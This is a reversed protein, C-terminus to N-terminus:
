FQFYIFSNKNFIGFIVICLCLLIYASFRFAPKSNFIKQHFDYRFMLYESLLLVGISLICVFFSATSVLNTTIGPAAFNFGHTCSYIMAIADNFSAARFFIWGFTVLVFVTAMNLIDLVPSTAPKRGKFIVADKFRGFLLYIGHLGGWIIFTWNAGHWLGSLLFVILINRCWVPISVRNGGLPIYLYDRFWSSLSIHWRGWFESISKAFYPFNFNKMLDIGMVRATGRAIDTYGSFDCYIQFSFFIVAILAPFGMFDGPAAYVKDVYAALNDAIVMKKFLGWVILKLGSAIAVPDPEHKKHFQPLVNQPREIPGAVLQPYFMVYLAYIGFHREAKFNGRYVEITYSMAQFTHFSLGIPLIINLFPIEASPNILHVAANVNDIFFNYYKFVALVGINSVLSIILFTKRKAGEANEIVIGAIYDIIITFFLILIYIPIFAMYFYCSALLLHLWRYKHPLLFYIITVLPFFIFFEFSNFLM